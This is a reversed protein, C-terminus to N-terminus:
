IYIYTHIYIYGKYRVQDAFGQWNGAPKCQKNCNIKDEPVPVIEVSILVDIRRCKGGLVERVDVLM